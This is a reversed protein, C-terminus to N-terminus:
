ISADISKRIYLSVTTIIADNYISRVMHVDRTLQDLALLSSDSNLVNKQIHAYRKLLRATGSDWHKWRLVM